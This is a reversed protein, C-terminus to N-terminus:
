NSWPPTVGNSRAYAISQGLHEHSHTQLLLVAGIWNTDRGFVNVPQLLQADTLGEIADAMHEFAIGLHAVVAGKNNIQEATGFWEQPYGAPPTVQMFQMPLGLNAAAIHMYVEGVSRVGDEPRWAYTDDPMAQALAVFKQGVARVDLAVESQFSQPSAPAAVALALAVVPLFRLVRM